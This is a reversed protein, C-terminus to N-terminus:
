KAWQKELNDYYEQTYLNCWRKEEDWEYNYKLCNEKNILIEGYKTGITRGEKCIGSSLCRDADNMETIFDVFGQKIKGSFLLLIVIIIILKKNKM